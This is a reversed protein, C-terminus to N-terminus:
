KGQVEEKSIIRHTVTVKPDKTRRTIVDGVNYDSLPKVFILSGAHIAPSMSGSMVTFVKYNGPFPVFSFVVFVGILVLLVLIVNLVTKFIKGLMINNFIIQGPNLRTSNRSASKNM